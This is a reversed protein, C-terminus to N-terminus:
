KFIPLAQVKSSNLKRHSQSSSEKNQQKVEERGGGRAISVALPACVQSRGSGGLQSQVETSAPASAVCPSQIWGQFPGAYTHTLQIIKSSHEAEM